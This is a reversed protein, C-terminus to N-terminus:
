HYYLVESVINLNKIKYNKTDIKCFFLEVDNNYCTIAKINCNKPSIKMMVGM